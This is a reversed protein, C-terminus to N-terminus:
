NELFNIETLGPCTDAVLQELSEKYSSSCACGKCFGSVTFTVQPEDVSTVTISRGGAALIPKLHVLRAELKERADM